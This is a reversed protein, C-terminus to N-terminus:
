RTAVASDCFDIFNCHCVGKAVRMSMGWAHFRTGEGMLQQNSRFTFWDFSVFRFGILQLRIGIEM